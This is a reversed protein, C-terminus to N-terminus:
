IEKATGVWNWNKQRFHIVLKIIKVNNDIIEETQYFLLYQKDSTIYKTCSNEITIKYGISSQKPTKTYSILGVRNIEYLVGKYIIHSMDDRTLVSDDDCTWKRYKHAM